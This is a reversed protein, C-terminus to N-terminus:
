DWLKHAKRTITQTSVLGLTMFCPIVNNNVSATFRNAHRHLHVRFLRISDFRNSWFTESIGALHSWNLGLDLTGFPFVQFICSGQLLVHDHFNAINNRMEHLHLSLVAAALCFLTMVVITIPRRPSRVFYARDANVRKPSQRFSYLQENCWKVVLWHIRFHAWSVNEDIELRNASIHVPIKSVVAQPEPPRLPDLVPGNSPEGM